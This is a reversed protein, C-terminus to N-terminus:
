VLYDPSEDIHNNLLNQSKLSNKVANAYNM